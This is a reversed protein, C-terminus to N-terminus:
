ADGSPLAARHVKVTRTTKTEAGGAARIADLAERELAGVKQGTETAVAALARKIGAKTADLEVAADAVAPGHLKAIADWAVNGKLSERSSETIGCVEGNGLPIPRTCARDYLAAKAKKIVAEVAEIREFVARATADDQIGAELEALTETPTAVLQRVFAGQAPCTTLAPCYRCHSGTRLGGPSPKGAAVLERAYIVDQGLGQLESAFGDLDFADWSAWDYRPRGDDDVYLVAAQARSRGLARAAMVSLARMQWNDACRTVPQRGTKYDIVVVADATLGVLDASGAIDTPTRGAKAYERGINEGLVRAEGSTVDFAFAVESAAVRSVDSAVQQNVEYGVALLGLSNGLDPSGFSAPDSYVREVYLSLYNALALKKFLGVLFLSMGDTLNRVSFPPTG